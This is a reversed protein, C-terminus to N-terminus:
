VPPADPSLMAAGNQLVPTVAPNEADIQMISDGIRVRPSKVYFFMNVNVGASFNQETQIEDAAASASCTTVFLPHVWLMAMLWVLTFCIVKKM